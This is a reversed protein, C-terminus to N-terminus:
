FNRRASCYIRKKYCDVSQDAKVWCIEVAETTKLNFNPLFIDSYWGKVSLLCIVAPYNYLCLTWHCADDLSVAKLSQKRLSFNYYNLVYFTAGARKVSSSFDAQVFIWGLAEYSLSSVYVPYEKSALFLESVVSFRNQCSYSNFELKLHTATLPIFFVM